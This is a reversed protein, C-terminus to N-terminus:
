VFSPAVGLRPSFFIKVLVGSCHSVARNQNQPSSRTPPLTPCDCSALFTRRTISSVLRWPIAGLGHGSKRPKHTGPHSPMAPDANDPQEECKGLLQRHLRQNASARVGVKRNILLHPPLYRGPASSRLEDPHGQRGFSSPVLPMPYVHSGYTVFYKPRRASAPCSM